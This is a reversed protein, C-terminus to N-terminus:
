YWPWNWANTNPKFASQKAPDNPFAHALVKPPLFVLFMLWSFTLIMLWPAPNLQPM